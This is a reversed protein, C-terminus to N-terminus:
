GEYALEDYEEECDECHFPNDLGEQIAANVSAFTESDVFYAEGCMGCRLEHQNEPTKFTTPGVRAVHEEEPSVASRLNSM